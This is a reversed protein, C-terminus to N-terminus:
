ETRFYANDGNISWSPSSTFLHQCLWGFAVYRVFVCMCAYLRRGCRRHCMFHLSLSLFFVKMKNGGIENASLLFQSTPVVEYLTNVQNTKEEDRKCGFRESYVDWYRICTFRAAYVIAYFQDIVGKAIHPCYLRVFFIYVCVRSFFVSLDWSIWCVAFDAIQFIHWYFPMFFSDFSLLRFRSALTSNAEGMKIPANFLGHSFYAFGYKSSETECPLYVPKKHGTWLFSRFYTTQDFELTWQSTKANRNIQFKLRLIPRFPIKLYISAGSGWQISLM